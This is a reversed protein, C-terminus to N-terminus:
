LVRATGASRTGKGRAHMRDRRAQYETPEIEGRALREDLIQEPSRREAATDAGRFIAVVALVVLAWFAVMALTMVVWSGWGMGDHYWDMMTRLEEYEGPISSV